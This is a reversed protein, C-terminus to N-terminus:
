PLFFVFPRQQRRRHIATRMSKAGPREHEVVNEKKESREKLFFMITLAGMCIRKRVMRKLIWGPRIMNVPGNMIRGKGTGIFYRLKRVYAATKATEENGKSGQKRISEHETRSRRHM